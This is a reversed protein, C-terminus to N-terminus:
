CAQRCIPDNEDSDSSESDQEDLMMAMFEEFDIKGDGDTDIERMLKQARQKGVAGQLVDGGLMKTIEAESLIGDGNLDFVNFAIRCVERNLNKKRDFTAALFESYDIIGSGNSDLAQITQRCMKAQSGKDLGLKALGEHLEENTMTGNGDKDMAQFVSRLQKIQKEQLQGAIIQLSVRKLKNEQHFGALNDIMGSPLEVQTARPALNQIWNDELALQANYRKSPVRKLLNQLLHKADKSVGAWHEGTLNIRGARVRQFIEADTAGTFPPRGCLVIYMIVGCSWLDCM